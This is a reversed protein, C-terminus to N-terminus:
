PRETYLLLEIGALLLPVLWAVGLRRAGAHPLEGATKAMAGVALSAGLIRHQVTLLTPPADSHHQAHFVFLAATAFMGSPLAARWRAGPLRGAARLWEAVGVLLCLAALVLHQKTALDFPEHSVARQLMPVLFGEAAFLLLTAALAYRLAAWRWVGAEHAILVLALAALEAGVLWHLQETTLGM